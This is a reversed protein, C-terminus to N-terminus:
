NLMSTAKKLSVHICSHIGQLTYARHPVPVQMKKPSFFLAERM